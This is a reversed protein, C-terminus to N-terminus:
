AKIFPTKSNRGEQQNNEYIAIKFVKTLAYEYYKWLLMTNAYDWPLMTNVCYSLIFKEDTILHM